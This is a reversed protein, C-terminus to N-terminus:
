IIRSIMKELLLKTNTIFELQQSQHLFVGIVGGLIMGILIILLISGRKNRKTKHKKVTSILRKPIPEALVGDYLRHLQTNILEYDRIHIILNPHTKVFDAVDVRRPDVLEQDAYAHLHAYSLSKLAKGM